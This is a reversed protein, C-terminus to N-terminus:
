TLLLPHILDQCTAILIEERKKKKKKKKEEEEEEEEQEEEQEELEMILELLQLPHVLLLLPLHLLLPTVHLLLHVGEVPLLHRHLRQGQRLGLGSTEERQVM